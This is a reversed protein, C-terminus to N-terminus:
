IGFFGPRYLPNNFSSVEVAEQDKTYILEGPDEGEDEPSINILVKTTYSPDDPVMTAGPNKITSRTYVM